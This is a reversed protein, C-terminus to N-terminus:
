FIAEKVLDVVFGCVQYVILYLLIFVVILIFMMLLTLIFNSVTQAFTYNHTEKIVVFLLVGTWIFMVILGFTYIFSENYTLVNSIIVIFPLMIIIPTLSCLSNIFISKMTGDGGM